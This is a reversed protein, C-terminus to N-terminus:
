IVTELKEEVVKGDATCFSKPQERTMEGTAKNEYYVEGTEENVIEM